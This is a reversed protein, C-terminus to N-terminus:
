DDDDSSDTVGLAREMIRSHGCWSLAAEIGTRDWTDRLKTTKSQIDVFLIFGILGKARIDGNKPIDYASLQIDSRGVYKHLLSTIWKKEEDDLDPIRLSIGEDRTLLHVFGIAIKDVTVSTKSQEKEKVPSLSRGRKKDTATASAM